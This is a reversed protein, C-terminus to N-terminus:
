QDQSRSPARRFKQRANRQLQRAWLRTVALDSFHQATRRASKRMRTAQAPSLHQLTLIAETLAAEDGEPVLFGNRGHSIIDAPGYPVDYAIPICGAAMSELVVLAFAESRSTLLLFSASALEARANTRYGHLRIMSTVDHEQILQELAVLQNGDGYIDLSVPHTSAGVAAITARVAHDVQKLESLRSIVVGRGAPRVASVATEVTLDTSNPIVTLNPVPGLLREIDSKQRRTLVVVADFEPLRGFVATRSARIIGPDSDSLHTGHIVHITVADDRRYGLMFRASTKSDVIMISPTGGRLRDLWFRYLGWISGWSRVPRGARDCLVVSRGGLTGPELIDRRDSALLSGDLRYYDVQLTTGGDIAVRTRTLERGDRSATSYEPSFDLPAFSHKDLRLTGPANPPTENDRLWDWLNTLKMTPVLEGRERLDREVTPYDPRGDFTLVEVAQGGLQQFARSRHLLVSTMGGYTDPIGWTVAFYRADPLSVPWKESRKVPTM